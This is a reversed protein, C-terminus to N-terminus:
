KTIRLETLKGAFKDFAAELEEPNSANAYYGDGPTACSKLTSQAAAPADFAVSFVVINKAKMAACLAVAQEASKKGHFATNFIGDTMLVVAKILKGDTVRQYPDPAGSGGWTGAWQESVLNWAWQAGFHGGTSASLNYANVAAKLADRDDSLPKVVAGTPCVFDMRGETTDIDKTGDAKVFFPDTTDSFMGSKRETVCGDKSKSASAAAAYSGLNIGAAYPALGIRVKQSESKHEPILRDAFTEFAGKLANIKSKGGVMGGMSGTIDLAMGVEIDKQQYSAASAVPIDMKTFGGIRALTMKVSSKVDIDVAGNERDIKITPTDITGMAKVGKVNENFYNTAMVVIESDNLQGDLLARGAVLSSADVASSVRSRMDIVRSYDVAIAGMFFLMFTMLGFLIAVAGEDDSGFTKVLQQWRTSM